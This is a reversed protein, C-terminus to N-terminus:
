LAEHRNAVRYLGLFLHVVRGIINAVVSRFGEACSKFACVPPILFKKMVSVQVELSFTKGWIVCEKDRSFVNM